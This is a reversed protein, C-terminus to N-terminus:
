PAASGILWLRQAILTTGRGGFWRGASIACWTKASKRESCPTGLPKMPGCCDATSSRVTSSAWRGSSSGASTLGAVTMGSRDRVPFQLRPVPLGVRHLVIRSYSEGVSEAGADIFSAVRRAQGVGRCHAALELGVLLDSKIMGGRLAADGLAVARVFSMSRSCDAVTRALGTVALGDVLTVESPDLRAPHVHVVTGCRGGGPRARIVHVKGLLDPWGPLGHVAAASMHSLVAEDSLKPMTTSILQRHKAVPDDALLEAYGGRRVRRLQGSSILQALEADGYGEAKLDSRLRVSLDPDM